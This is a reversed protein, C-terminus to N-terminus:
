SFPAHSNSCGSQTIDRHSKARFGLTFREIQEIDAIALSIDNGATIVTCWGNKAIIARSRKIDAVDRAVHTPPELFIDALNLEHTIM